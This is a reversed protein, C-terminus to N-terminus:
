FPDVGFSSQVPGIQIQTLIKMLKQMLPSMYVVPNSSTGDVCLGRKKVFGNICDCGNKASNLIM